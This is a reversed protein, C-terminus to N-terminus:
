TTPMFKVQRWGLKQWSGRWMGLMERLLRIM